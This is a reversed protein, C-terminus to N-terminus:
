ERRAIPKCGPKGKQDLLGAPFASWKWVCERTSGRGKATEACVIRNKRREPDFLCVAEFEGSHPRDRGDLKEERQIRSKWDEIGLREELRGLQEEPGNRSRM